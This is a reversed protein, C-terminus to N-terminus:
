FPDQDGSGLHAWPVQGQSRQLRVKNKGKNVTSWCWPGGRQRRVVCLDLDVRPHERRHYRHRSAGGEMPPANYRTMTGEVGTHSSCPLRVVRDLNTSPVVVRQEEIQKIKQFVYACM